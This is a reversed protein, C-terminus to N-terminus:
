HLTIYSTNLEKLGTARELPGALTSGKVGVARQLPEVCRSM